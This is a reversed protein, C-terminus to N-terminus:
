LHKGEARHALSNPYNKIFQLNLEEIKKSSDGQKVGFSKLEEDILTRVREDTVPEM